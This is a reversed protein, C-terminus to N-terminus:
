GPGLRERDIAYITVSPNEFAVEVGDLRGFRRVRPQYRDREAEGVWVYRVDYQDLLDVVTADPTDPDYIADVDEVRAQYPGVGRYGQQHSWGVVTPLGTLTSAPNVWSYAREGPAELVVPTDDRDDLWRVATMEPARWREHGDFGDISAPPRHDDTAHDYVAGAVGLAPFVAMAAVLAGVLLLGVVPAADVRTRLREFAVGGIDALIAGAALACLIWAQMSVKYTTNWRQQDPPWVDAYVLEMALVLGLGGVILVGTYGLRDDVRVLWWSVVLLPLAVALAAFGVVWALVAAGVSGGALAAWRRADGGLHRWAALGVLLAFLAFFAGWHLVQQALPSREPLFGVGENTPLEFLVFPAIWAIGLLGVVLGVATGVALRGAEAGAPTEGRLSRELREPVLTAPHSPALTVALWAIGAAGPLSWANMWGVFGAVAPLVGVVIARRRWRADTPTRYYAYGIAAVLAMFPITTVHGHLDGKLLAYSPFELLANDIVYRDYWWFWGQLTGQDAIREPISQTDRIAAFAFGGYRVALDTPLAGILLRVPTTLPGALVLAGAGLVGGVRGSRGRARALEGVLGYAAAVALGFCLALGLNYALRADTATLRALQDVITHGGYYYRVPEGAFWMDEPPLADARGVAKLLGFHLFQEGGAPTITPDTARVWVAGLFGVLLAVTGEAVAPWDPRVGRVFLLAAVGGLVLMAVALAGLGYALRGVWFTVLGIVVLSLHVAFAGGRGSLPEFVAAALPAGLLALVVCALAWTLLAVWEM